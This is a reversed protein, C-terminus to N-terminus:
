IIFFHKERYLENFSNLGNDRENVTRVFIKEWPIPVNDCRLYMDTFNKYIKGTIIIKLQIIRIFKCIGKSSQM